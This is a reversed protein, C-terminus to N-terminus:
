ARLSARRNRGMSLTFGGDPGGLPASLTNQVLTCITETWQAGFGYRGLRDTVIERTEDPHSGSFDLRELIEHFCSGAASGRPFDFITLQVGEKREDRLPAESRSEQDRDPLDALEERGSTLASFSSVRWDREIKGAFSRAKLSQYTPPPPNFRAVAGHSPAIVEVAGGARERLDALDKEMQADSLGQMYVQLRRLDSGYGAERGHFLYALASTECENMFGWAAYCRYKARTLAVYTLRINEALQEQEACRRSEDDPSTCINLVAEYNNDPDHYTVPFGAVGSDGWLFPCFCIAYELGKSKHITVIKVALDDTELRIQYEDMAVSESTQRKEALWKLLGETGLKEEVSARHLLEVCHLLNTIRREGDGFARLRRKVQERAVLLRAMVVFGFNLMLEHYADFKEIWSEWLHEKDIMVALDDGTVGFITTALAAKIRGEDRPDSVARLILDLEQAEESAFVSESSYVVSPIAAERLALQMDRAERNTRVIVAIDSAQVPRGDLTARGSLGFELLRTIESVTSRNLVDRALGKSITKGEESRRLFWIKLPSPDAEGDILLAGSKKDDGAEVPTFELADLIFPRGSSKFIANIATILTDSSRWNKELTYRRDVDSAASIYAFVDAGRFGFIAQKPDGIVFLTANEHRYISSFIAYQVPDTDQFEDILAVKYTERLLGALREGGSGQLAQHLDLLLDNYSRINREKKRTSSERQIFQILKRRVEALKEQFCADLDV